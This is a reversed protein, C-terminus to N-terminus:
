NMEFSLLRQFDITRCKASLPFGGELDGGLSRVTCASITSFLQIM